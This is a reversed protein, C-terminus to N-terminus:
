HQCIETHLTCYINMFKIYKYAKRHLENGDSRLVEWTARCLVASTVQVEKLLTPSPVLFGGCPQPCVRSRRGLGLGTFRFQKTERGSSGVPFGGRCQLFYLNAPSSTASLTSKTSEVMSKRQTSCSFGLVEWIVEKWSMERKRCLRTQVYLILRLTDSKKHLM